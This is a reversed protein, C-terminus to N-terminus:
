LDQWVKAKKKWGFFRAPVSYAAGIGLGIAVATKITDMGSNLAAQGDGSFFHATTYYIGGGPVLAFIGCLLFVTTPAQCRVALHRALITLVMSALFTGVIPMQYRTSILLYVAWGVAGTMGCQIHYKPPVSFLISFAVTGIYAMILQIGFELIPELAKLEM